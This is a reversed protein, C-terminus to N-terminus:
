SCSTRNCCTVRSLRVDFPALIVRGRQNPDVFARLLLMLRAVLEQHVLSPSPSVVIEGGILEYRRGDDPMKQLDDYILSTPMAAM